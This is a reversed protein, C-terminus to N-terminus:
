YVKLVKFLWFRISGMFMQGVFAMRQMRAIADGDAKPACGRNSVASLDLQERQNRRDYSERGLIRPRSRSLPPDRALQTTSTSRTSAGRGFSGLLESAAKKGGEVGHIVIRSPILKNECLNM